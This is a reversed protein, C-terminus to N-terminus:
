WWRGPNPCAVHGAAARACGGDIAFEDPAEPHGCGGNDKTFTCGKYNSALVNQIATLPPITREMYYKAQHAAMGGPLDGGHDMFNELVGYFLETQKLYTALDDQFSV